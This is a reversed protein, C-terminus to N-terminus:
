LQIVKGCELETIHTVQIFQVNLEESLEELMIRVRDRYQASVFRFPEDMILVKRLKPRHLMLCAVRLAFAAVDVVGGGSATMPDVTMGDRKFLLQAETRGRKREFNIEFQYPADFVSSLCRSVVGAIRQHAKEQVAQAIQQIIKRADEADTVALEAEELAEKEEQVSMKAHRHEALLEDVRGRMEQIDLGM